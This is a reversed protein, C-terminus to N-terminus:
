MSILQRRKMHEDIINAMQIPKLPKLLTNQRKLDEKDNTGKTAGTMFVIDPGTEQGYVQRIINAIEYGNAYPMRIDMFIIDPRNKAIEDLAMSPDTLIRTDIKYNDLFKAYTMATLEDDDIILTKPKKQYDLELYKCIMVHLKDINFPKVIYDKAGARISELRAEIDTRGSMVLTPFESQIEKLYDIGALKGERLNLDILILSPRLHESMRRIEKITGFCQTEFGLNQLQAAVTDAYLTDDELIFIINPLCIANPRTAYEHKFIYLQKMDYDLSTIRDQIKELNSLRPTKKFESLYYLSSLISIMRSEWLPLMMHNATTEFAECDKILSDLKRFNQGNWKENNDQMLDYFNETIVEMLDMLEQLYDLELQSRINKEARQKNIKQARSLGHFIDTM